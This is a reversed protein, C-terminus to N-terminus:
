RGVPDRPALAQLRALIDSALHRPLWAEGSDVARVARSVLAPSDTAELWGHAGHAAADVLAHPASAHGVVIVRTRGSKRRVLGLMVHLDASRVSDGLLLVRPKLAATVAVIEGGTRAEGVVRLGPDHRLRHLSPARVAPRRDAVLVTIPRV